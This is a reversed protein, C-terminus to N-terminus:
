RETRNTKKLLKIKNKRKLDVKKGRVLFAYENKEIKKKM